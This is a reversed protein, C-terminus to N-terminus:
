GTKGLMRSSVCARCTGSRQNAADSLSIVGIISGSDPDSVFLRGIDEILMHMM